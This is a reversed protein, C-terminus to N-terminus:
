SVSVNAREDMLENTSLESVSLTRQHKLENTSLESVSLESM